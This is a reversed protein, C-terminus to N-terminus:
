GTVKVERIRAQVERSLDVHHDLRLLQGVLSAAEAVEVAEGDDGVDLGLELVEDLVPKLLLFIRLDASPLAATCAADGTGHRLDRRREVRQVRRLLVLRLQLLVLGLDAVVDLDLLLELEVDLDKLFLNVVEFSLFLFPLCLCRLIRCCELLFELETKLLM